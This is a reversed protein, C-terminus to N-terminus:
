WSNLGSTETFRLPGNHETLDRTATDGVGSVLVHQPFGHHLLHLGLPQKGKGPVGIADVRLDVIGLLSGVSTSNLSSGVAAPPVSSLTVTDRKRCRGRSITSASTTECSVVTGPDGPSDIAIEVGATAIQVQMVGLAPRRRGQSVRRVEAERCAGLARLPAGGGGMYLMELYQLRGPDHMARAVSALAAKLEIRPGDLLDPLVEIQHGPMPVPGQRPQFRQDFSSAVRALLRMAANRIM